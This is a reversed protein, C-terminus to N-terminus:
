QDSVAVHSTGSLLYEDTNILKQVAPCACEEGRGVGARQLGAPSHHAQADLTHHVGVQHGSCSTTSPPPTPSPPLETGTM